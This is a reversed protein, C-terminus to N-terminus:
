RSLVHFADDPDVELVMEVRRNAERGAATKNDGIPRTDAFGAASLLKGEYRFARQVYSAVSAARAASLDWNDRYKPNVLRSTDTHGEIRIPRHLATLEASIADLIPIMEPRIVAQSADFFRAASLRVVLRRGEAQIIVNRMAEPRDQLYKKLKQQLKKRLQEIVQQEEIPRQRTASNIPSHEPYSTDTPPGPFIPLERLGGTGKFHMAFKIANEVQVLKKNDVRSTAYLVVFFAFLLTIFDAYSVLWREHNEHEEHHQKKAM